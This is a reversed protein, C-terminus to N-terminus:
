TKTKEYLDIGESNIEHLLFSNEPLTDLRICDIKLLTDANDFIELIKLWGEETAKKCDIALDIDAKKACDGRARSGFLIIRNISPIKCLKKYFLYKKILFVSKNSLCISKLKGIRPMFFEEKFHAVIKM